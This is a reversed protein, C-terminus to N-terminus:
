VPMGRQEERRIMDKGGTGCVHPRTRSAEGLSQLYGFSTRRSNSAKQEGLLDWAEEIESLTDRLHEVLEASQASMLMRSDVTTPENAFSIGLTYNLASDVPITPVPIEGMRLKRYNREATLMGTTCMILYEM